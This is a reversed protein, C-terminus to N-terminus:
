EEDKDTPEPQAGEPMSAKFLGENKSFRLAFPCPFDPQLPTHVVTHVTCRFHRTNCVLYEVISLTQVLRDLILPSSFPNHYVRVLV